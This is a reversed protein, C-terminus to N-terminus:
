ASGPGPHFTGAEPDRLETRLKLGKTMVWRVRIYVQPRGWRTGQWASKEGAASCLSLALSLSSFPSCVLHALGQIEM